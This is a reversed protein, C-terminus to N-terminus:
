GLLRKLESMDQQIGAEIKELEEIIELPSRHHAEDYIIERYRNLSLDYNQAVVNDKPICFSQETRARGQESGNRRTWRALVDPLNNKEHDGEELATM